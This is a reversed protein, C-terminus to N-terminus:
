TYMWLDLRLSKTRRRRRGRPPLNKALYDLVQSFEADTAKAGRSVMSAITEAWQQRTKGKSVTVEPGHCAGCVKQTVEKGPAEPFQAQLFSATLLIVAPGSLRLPSPM